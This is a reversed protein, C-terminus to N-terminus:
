CTIWYGEDVVITVPTPTNGEERDSTVASIEIVRIRKRRATDFLTSMEPPPQIRREASLEEFNM